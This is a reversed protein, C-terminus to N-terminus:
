LWVQFERGRYLLSLATKLITWLCLVQRPFIDAVRPLATIVNCGHFSHASPQFVSETCNSSVESPKSLVSFICLGKVPSVKNIEQGKMIWTIVLSQLLQNKLAKRLVM